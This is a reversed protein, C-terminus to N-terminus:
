CRVTLNTRSYGTSAMVLPSRTILRSYAADGWTCVDLTPKSSTDTELFVGIHDPLRDCPAWLLTSESKEKVRIDRLPEIV